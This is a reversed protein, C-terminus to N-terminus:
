TKLFRMPTLRFYQKSSLFLSPSPSVEVRKTENSPRLPRPSERSKIGHTPPQFLFQEQPPSSIKPKRKTSHCFPVSNLCALKTQDGEKEKSIRQRDKRGWFRRSVRKEQELRRSLVDATLSRRAFVNKKKKQVRGKMFVRARENEKRRGEWGEDGEERERKESM